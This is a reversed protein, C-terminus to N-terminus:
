PRMGSTVRPVPRAVSLLAYSWAPQVVDPKTQASDAGAVRMGSASTASGDQLREVKVASLSHAALLPSVALRSVWDNLSSPDTTVGRVEMQKEDALLDTVWVADPITQAVLRMRAAHGGGPPVLGRRLEELFGRREQLLVNLARLEQQAVELTPASSAQQMKLAAQLAERESVRATLERKLAESSANLSSVWYACLGAGALLFLVLATVLTQGSFSRRQTLLIPTFLNIQQAM